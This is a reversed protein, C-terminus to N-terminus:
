DRIVQIENDVSHVGFVSRADMGAKTRDADSSVTGYLAVNGNKVIIHIGYNGLPEMGLFPTRGWAGTRFGPWADFGRGWYRRGFRMGSFGALPTGYKSLFDDTYIKRFLEMRIRDDEISVPLVEIKNIVQSVGPVKKVADEAEKKLSARYVEGGLTVSTGHVEFALLDFVGYYPLGLVAIRARDAIELESLPPQGQAKAIAALIVFGVLSLIFRHAHQTKM